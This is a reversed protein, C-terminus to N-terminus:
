WRVVDRTKTIEIVGDLISFIIVNISTPLPEAFKLDLRLNSSEYRQAYGGGFSLDPTLNYVFLTSGNEYEHQTIGNSRDTTYMELNQIMQMYAMISYGKKFDLGLPPMPIAEANKKLSIFNLDFHQFNFPNKKYDGNFAFNDVMGIVVLKPTDGNILIERTDTTSGRSITFNTVECKQIPYIANRLNM